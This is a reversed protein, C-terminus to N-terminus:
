FFFQVAETSRDYAAAARTARPWCWSIADGEIMESVREMSTYWSATEARTATCRPPLSDDRTKGGIAGLFQYTIPLNHADHVENM